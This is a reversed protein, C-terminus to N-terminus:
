NRLEMGECKGEEGGGPLDVVKAPEVNIWWGEGKSVRFPPSGCGSGWLRWPLLGLTPVIM